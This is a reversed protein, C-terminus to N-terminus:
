NKTPFISAGACAVLIISSGIIQIPTLQEALLFAAFLFSFPAELLFLIAAVTPSLSRQASVQFYFALLSSGFALSAMGIWALNDMGTVAWKATFPFLLLAVLATWLSQFTSFIFPDKSQPSIKAIYLIHISATLANILTLTDGFNWKDWSLEAILATGIFALVVWVWLLWSIKTKLFLSSLIPVIVVYLSTIFASKTASTYQLGGTQLLLTLGLLLGAPLSLRFENKLHKKWGPLLPLCLAGIVFAVAFRYFIIAPTSLYRLAWVTGIFGFGWLASAIFLEVFPKATSKKQM